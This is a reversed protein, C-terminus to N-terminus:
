KGRQTVTFEAISVSGGAVKDMCIRVNSTTVTPLDLTKKGLSTGSAWEVWEGEKQYQIRYTKVRNFREIVEVRNVPRPADFVIELWQNGRSGEAANWRTDPNGDVALEPPNVGAWFSSARVTGKGIDGVTSVPVAKTAQLKRSEEKYHRNSQAWLAELEKLKEPYQASLDNTESRDEKLNYLEWSNKDIKASVLKWDGQRLGRNGSHSFFVPSERPTSFTERNFVSAFSEGTLEPAEPDLVPHDVGAVELLTPVIDIVHGLRDSVRGYVEADIGKPWHAILPTAVGGEHTWIKYRRFPTNALAAFGPGLCLHTDAGGMNAKPDHVVKGRGYAGYMEASAGNDSLFLILTNDFDGMSKIQDIVRGLAQDMDDVMAAHIQMKLSQFAQVDESLDDWDAANYIENPGFIMKGDPGKKIGMGEIQPELPSIAWNQPFGKEKMRQLRKKRLVDWGADYVGDYKRITEQRAHLPWHPAYFALYSFFPADAHNTQHDKLYDIMRDAMADTDYVDQDPYPKDDETVHRPRFHNEGNHFALSHDFGADGCVKPLTHIHWKGTHYSRYGNQRLLAPLPSLRETIVEMKDKAVVHPGGTIQELHYGSMLSTRSPWCRACNYYDSFRLGTAALSDLRPTDIESGYCGLDSFGMDDVLVLLINPKESASVSLSCWATAVVLLGTTWKKMDINM